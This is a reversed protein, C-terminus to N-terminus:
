RMCTIRYSLPSIFKISLFHTSFSFRKIKEIKIDNMFIQANIAIKIINEKHIESLGVVVEGSVFVILKKHNKIKKEIKM